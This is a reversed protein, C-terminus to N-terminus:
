FDIHFGTLDVLFTAHQKKRDLTRDGFYCTNQPCSV